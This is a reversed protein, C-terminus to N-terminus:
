GALDDPRDPEWRLLISDDKPNAWFQRLIAIIITLEGGLGALRQGGRHRLRHLRCRAILDGREAARQLLRAIEDSPGARDALFEAKLRHIAGLRWDPTADFAAEFGAVDRERRLYRLQELTGKEGALRALLSFWHRAAQPDRAVYHGEAHWWALCYAHFPEGAEAAATIADIDSANIRGHSPAM